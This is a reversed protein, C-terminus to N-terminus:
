NNYQPMGAAARDIGRHVVFGVTGHLEDGVLDAVGDAVLGVLCRCAQLVDRVAHFTDLFAALQVVVFDVVAQADDARQVM